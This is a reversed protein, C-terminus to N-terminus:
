ERQAGTTQVIKAWRVIEGDLYEKFQAPTSGVGTLVQADLLSKVEPMALAKAIADSMIKVRDAPTGKPALMATWNYDEIDKYGLEYLTPVDPMAAVREKSTVALARVKGQKVYPVVSALAVSSVPTEGSLVAIAAPGAGRYPVSTMNSKWIVHFLNDASLSPTTGLGPTGYALSRNPWLAKLDALTKAPVADNVVIVNPQSTINSVPIFDKANYGADKGWLAPNVAFATTTVLFTYGDPAAIGVAAAGVNGGAGGRNEVIVSQGLIKTLAPAIIRATIDSIGGPPFAVILKVPKDPYGAAGAPNMVSMGAIALAALGLSLLRRSKFIRM